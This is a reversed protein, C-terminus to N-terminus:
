ACEVLSVGPVKRFEQDFSLILGDALQEATAAIAVDVFSLRTRSQAFFREAVTPFISSCPVFELEKAALLTRGVRRAVGMERRAMLVTAVELVVYELLLGKGWRGDLFEDM